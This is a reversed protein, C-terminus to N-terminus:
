QELPKLNLRKGIENYLQQAQKETMFIDLIDKRDGSKKNNGDLEDMPDIGGFSLMIDSKTSECGICDKGYARASNSKNLKFNM